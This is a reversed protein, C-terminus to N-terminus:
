RAAHQLSILALGLSSARWRASRGMAIFSMAVDFRLFGKGLLPTWKLLTALISPAAPGAQADGIGIALCLAIALLAGHHANLQFHRLSPPAALRFPKLVPLAGARTVIM